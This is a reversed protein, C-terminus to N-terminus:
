KTNTSPEVFTEEIERWGEFVGSALCLTHKFKEGKGKAALQLIFYFRFLAQL